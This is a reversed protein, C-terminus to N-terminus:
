DPGLGWEEEPVLEDGDVADASMPGGRGAIYLSEARIGDDDDQIGAGGGDLDGRVAVVQIPHRSWEPRGFSPM